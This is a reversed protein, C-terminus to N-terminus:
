PLYLLDHFYLFQKQFFCLQYQKEDHEEQDVLMQVQKSLQNIREVFGLPIEEPNEKIVEKKISNPSSELIKKTHNLPTKEPNKQIKIKRPKITKKTKKM